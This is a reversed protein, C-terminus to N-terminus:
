LVFEGATVAVIAPLLRLIKQHGTGSVIDM